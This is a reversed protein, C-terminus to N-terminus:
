TSTSPLLIRVDVTMHRTSTNKICPSNIGSSSPPRQTTTSTASSPPTLPPPLIIQATATGEASGVIQYLSQQLPIPTGAPHPSYLPVTNLNMAILSSGRDTGATQIPSQNAQSDIAQNNSAPAMSAVLGATSTLPPINSPVAAADSGPGSGAVSPSFYATTANSGTEAGVTKSCPTSLGATVPYPITATITEPSFVTPASTPLRASTVYGGTGLGGKQLTSTSNSFPAGSSSCPQLEGGTSSERFNGTGSPIPQAGQTTYSQVVTGIAGWGINDTGSSAAGRTFSLFPTSSRASATTLPRRLGSREAGLKTGSSDPPFSPIAELSSLYSAAAAPDATATFASQVSQESQIKAQISSLLRNARQNPACVAVSLFCTTLFFLFTFVSMM